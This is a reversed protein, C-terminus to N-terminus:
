KGITSPGQSSTIVIPGRRPNITVGTNASTNQLTVKGNAKVVKLAEQISLFPLAVTGAECANPGQSFKVHVDQQLVRFEVEVAYHDSPYCEPEGCGGPYTNRRIVATFPELDGATHLIHDIRNGRAAGGFGHATNEFSSVDPIVQRYSNALPLSGTPIFTPNVPCDSSPSYTRSGMLIEFPVDTETCNFDGLLIAPAGGCISAVRERILAASYNRAVDNLPWHSNFVFFRLGTYNQVLEVWSIIRYNGTEQPHKSPQDPTCSMWFTDSRLRSFRDIRYFIACHEGDGRDKAYYAHTPFARSIDQLQSARTTAFPLPDKVEQLGFIDPAYAAIYAKAVDRRASTGGGKFWTNECESLCSSWGDDFRLNFTWVKFANCNVAGVRLSFLLTLILIRVALRSALRCAGNSTSSTYLTM